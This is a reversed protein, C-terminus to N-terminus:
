GVMQIYWYSCFITILHELERLLGEVWSFTNKNFLCMYHLLLCM